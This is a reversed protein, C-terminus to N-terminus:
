LVWWLLYFLTPAALFMSDFRDLIGGHGPLLAGTDKAASLRKLASVLLDGLVAAVGVAAGIGAAVVVPLSPLHPVRSLAVALMAAGAIGAVTGAWTKKPSIRPALRPGNVARGVLYAVTDTTWVLLFLGAVAWWGMPPFALPLDGVMPVNGDGMFAGLPKRLLLVHAYGVGLAVSGVSILVVDRVAILGRQLVDPVVGLAIFLINLAIIVSIVLLLLQALHRGYVFSMLAPITATMLGFQPISHVGRHGLLTTYEEAGLGAIFLVVILLTIGHWQPVADMGLLAVLLPLGVLVTTVRTRFADGTTDTAPPVDAVESPLM